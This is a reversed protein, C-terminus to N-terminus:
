KLRGACALVFALYPPSGRFISSKLETHAQSAFFFPHDRIELFEMRERKEDVGSFILGKKIMDDVLENNIEYRHRHREKTYNTCYLKYALSEKDDIVVAKAGLRLTGGLKTSDIEPMFKVVGIPEPIGIEEHCEETAANKWGLVNRCFEVVAM